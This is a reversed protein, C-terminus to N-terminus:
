SFCTHTVIERLATVTEAGLLLMRLQPSTYCGLHKFVMRHGRGSKGLIWMVHGRVISFARPPHLEALDLYEMLVRGVSQRSPEGDEGSGEPNNAADLAIATLKESKIASPELKHVDSSSAHTTDAKVRKAPPRDGMARQVAGRCVSSKLARARNYLRPDYLLGEACMIGSAGTYALNAEVDAPAATNGNSVLHVGPLAAVIKRIAALDARCRKRHYRPCPRRRGHVAILACGADRLRKCLEITHAVSPLLRIKCFVPVTLAASLAAVMGTVTDWKDRDLLYSGFLCEKAQPLPCGLNIDVADVLPEALKAAAVMTDADHGCFQVVLPRDQKTTKLRTARYVPDDVFRKSFLMETYCTDAGHRRALLRFALDSAGVMPAAIYKCPFGLAPLPPNELSKIAPGTNSRSADANTIDGNTDLSSVEKYDCSTDCSISHKRKHAVM